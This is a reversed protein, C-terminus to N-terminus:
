KRALVVFRTRNDDTDQINEVLITLGYREAAAHSAIAGQTIDKRRAVHKAAGATDYWDVPTLDPHQDLFTRCQALAMPHSLVTRLARLTVDNAALLCHQIPLWFDAEITLDPHDLFQRSGPVPGVISNEIPIIAYDAVGSLLLAATGEFDRCPILKSTGFHRRAAIESFAGPEGQFAVAKM